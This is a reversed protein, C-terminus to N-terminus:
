YITSSFKVTEMPESFVNLPDYSFNEPFLKRNLHSLCKRRANKEQTKPSQRYKDNEYDIVRKLTKKIIKWQYVDQVEWWPM